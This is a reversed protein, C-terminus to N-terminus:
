NSVQAIKALALNGAHHSVAYGSPAQFVTPENHNCITFFQDSQSDLTTM